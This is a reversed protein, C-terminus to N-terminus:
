LAFMKNDTDEQKQMQRAQQNSRGAGSSTAATTDSVRDSLFKDFETSTMSTNTNNDGSPINKDPMKGTKLWNEMEAYDSEKDLLNNGYPNGTNKANVVSALNGAYADQQQNSYVAGASPPQQSNSEASLNQRNQDFAQRSQAFMDFDSDQATNTTSTTNINDLTSSVSGAGVSMNALRANIDGTPTTFPNSATPQPSPTSLDILNAIPETAAPQSTPQSPVASSYTPPAVNGVSANSQSTVEGSSPANQGTRYREFRDYRLFVNNLDDNIILLEGTVEENAVKDILEVVRQQMQRCTRNLEQLLDLDEPSSGTPTMETLMEGFVRINGQVTDLESRLKAMQEANLQVPGSAVYATQPPQGVFPAQGPPVQPPAQYASARTTASPTRTPTHAAPVTPEVDPASKAPTHIPALTDLDTMPFEIGKQKLDLYQKEVEKLEPSGRFADAWTQILSLIKEQVVQPPDNKPGIIKILEHLFDKNAVHVHFRRGCNKVCTELVTLTYMVVSYNKGANMTLKKRIAKIGDKPGDETENIIDCIEMNLAWNESALSADTAQDILQGVPTSFPNGGLHDRFFSM